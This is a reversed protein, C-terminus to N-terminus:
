SAHDDGGYDAAIRAVVRNMIQRVTDEYEDPESTLGALVGGAYREVCRLGEPGCDAIRELIAILSAPLATKQRRRGRHSYFPVLNTPTRKSM